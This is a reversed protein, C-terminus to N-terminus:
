DLAGNEREVPRPLDDIRPYASSSPIPLRRLDDTVPRLLRGLIAPAQDMEAEPIRFPISFRDSGAASRLADALSRDLPDITVTGYIVHNNRYLSAHMREFPRPAGKEPVFQATAGDGGMIITWGSVPVGGIAELTQAVARYSPPPVIVVEAFLNAAAPWGCRVGARVMLTQFATGWPVRLDFCVRVQEGAAVEVREWTRSPLLEMGGEPIENFHYDLAVDVRVVRKARGGVVFVTGSFSEHWGAVRAPVELRATCGAVEGA